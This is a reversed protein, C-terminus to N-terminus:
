SRDKLSGPSTPEMPCKPHYFETIWRGGIHAIPRGLDVEADELRGRTVEVVRQHRRIARHCHSCRLIM